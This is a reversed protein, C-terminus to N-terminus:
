KLEGESKVGPQGIKPHDPPLVRYVEGAKVRIKGGDSYDNHSQITQPNKQIM